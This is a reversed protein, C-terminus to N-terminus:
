RVHLRLFWGVNPSAVVEKRELHLRLFSRLFEVSILSADIGLDAYHKQNTSDFKESPM